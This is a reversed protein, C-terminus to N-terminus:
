SNVEEEFNVVAANYLTQFDFQDEKCLSDNVEAAHHMLDAMIDSVASSFDDEGHRRMYDLVIQEGRKAREINTPENM